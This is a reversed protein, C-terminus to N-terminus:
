QTVGKTEGTALAVTLHQVIFVCWRRRVGQVERRFVENELAQHTFGLQRVLLTGVTHPWGPVHELVARSWAREFAEKAMHWQGLANCIFWCGELEDAFEVSNMAQLVASGEARSFTLGPLVCNTQHVFCGFSPVIVM